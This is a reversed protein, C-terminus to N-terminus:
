KDKHKKNLAEKTENIGQKLDNLFERNIEKLSKKGGNPASITGNLWLSVCISIIILSYSNVAYLQFWAIFLTISCIRSIGSALSKTTLYQAAAYYNTNEALSGARVILCRRWLAVLLEAWFVSTLIICSPLCIEGVNLLLLSCVMYSLAIAAANDIEVKVEYFNISLYGCLVGILSAACFAIYLPAAGLASMISLGVLLVIKPILFTHPLFNNVVGGLCYISAFAFILLRLLWLPLEPYANGEGIPQLLVTFGVCVITILFVSRTNLCMGAVYIVAALMLPVIVRIVTLTEIFDTNELWFFAFISSVAYFVYMYPLPLIAYSIKLTQEYRDIQPKYFIYMGVFGIIMFIFYILLNNMVCDGLKPFM